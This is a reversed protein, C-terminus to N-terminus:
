AFEVGQGDRRRRFRCIIDAGEAAARRNVGDGGIGFEGDVQSRFGAVLEETQVFGEQAEDGVGPPVAQGKRRGEEAFPGAAAACVDRGLAPADGGDTLCM